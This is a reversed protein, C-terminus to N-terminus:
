SVARYRRGSPGRNDTDEAEAHGGQVQRTIAETLWRRDRSSVARTLEGHTVWDGSGPLRQLFWLGVRKVHHEATLDEAIVAREAEDRGRAQNAAARQEGLADLVAKRTDDSVKMVHGALNWDEDNIHTHGNLLALAIAVKERTLLAHGDLTHGNGQNRDVHAGDIARQATDCVEIVRRGGSDSFKSASWTPNNWHMPSPEPPRERRMDPDRAPLWLFRQPTGADAEDLLPRARKPQVGVILSLRYAHAKVEINKSRDVYAFGLRGGHYAHRIVPGLTSGQRQALQTLTDLEGVVFLVSTTHQVLEGKIRAAFCHAIGEGSGPTREIVNGVNVADAAAGLAADKGDGSPGVLAVFLNLSMYTGILPPLQWDPPIATIVRALVVGLSTWPSARRARAFDRIHALEPRADWFPDVDLTTAPDHHTHNGLEARVQEDTKAEVRAVGWALAENVENPHPERKDGTRLLVLFRNALLEEGFVSDAETICGAREAAALRTAQAILWPHRAKPTDDSWGDVMKAVYPCTNEGYAWGAEPAKVDGIQARDEAWEPIGYEDLVERLHDLSVPAGGCFEFTVPVPEAKRNTTGPVRLVRSLDYVNDVHGGYGDAVKAVLRGWRHLLAKGDLWHPHTEDPWDTGPGREVRWHPQLGHGSHVLAVPAVGLMESLDAVIKEATDYDAIGTPKVDLDAYLERLGVVDREAGRGSTVRDHLPQTSYWCDADAYNAAIGPVAEVTTLGVM